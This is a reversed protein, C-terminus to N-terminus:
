PSVSRGSKRAVFVWWGIKGERALREGSRWIEAYQELLATDIEAALVDFRDHIRRHLRAFHAALHGGWDIAREIEFGARTLAQRFEEADWFDRNGHRSEALELDAADCRSAATMQESFVIRGGPRLVRSAEAFFRGKDAAYVVAEQSWHLDFTGDGFPLAHFDAVRFAVLRALGAEQTLRAAEEIQVASLNTATVRCGFREALHRASAGYGCGVELVNAGPPPGALEAMRRKTAMAAAELSEDGTEYLGFHISGGWVARYLRDISIDDYRTSM